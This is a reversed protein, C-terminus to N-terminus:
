EKFVSLQVIRFAASYLGVEVNSCLARLMIKLNRVDIQLQVQEVLVLDLTIAETLRTQRCRRRIVAQLRTVRKVHQVRAACDGHVLALAVDQAHARLPM